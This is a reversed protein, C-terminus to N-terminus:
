LAAVAAREAALGARYRDLYSAYGAVEVPDPDVTSFEADAFVVDDLYGALTADTQGARRAAAYAALVAIGWAGGESAHREVSVATDLAASLVRQAVGATRFIGGHALMRDVKVGEDDLVRMGLSLTAFVGALQSRLVNALTLQSDPTRIVM